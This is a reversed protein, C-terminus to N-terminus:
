LTLKKPVITLSFVRGGDHAWGEVTAHVGNFEDPLANIEAIAFVKAAEIQRQDKALTKGDLEFEKAVSIVEIVAARSGLTSISFAM